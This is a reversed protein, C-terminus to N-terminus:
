FSSVICLTLSVRWLKWFHSYAGVQLEIQTEKLKEIDAAANSFRKVLNQSLLNTDYILWGLNLCNNQMLDTPFTNIVFEQFCDNQVFRRWVLDKRLWVHSPCTVHSLCTVHEQCTVLDIIVPRVDMEKRQLKRLEHIERSHEKAADANERNKEAIM